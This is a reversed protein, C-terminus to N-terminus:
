LSFNPALKLLQYAFVVNNSSFAYTQAKDVGFKGDGGASPLGGTTATAGLQGGFKAAGESSLHFGKAIKVGTIMFVPKSLISDPKMLARIIPDKAREMILESTVGDRFYTTELTEISYETRLSKSQEAGLKLQIGELFTAWLSLSLTRGGEDVLKWDSESVTTTEPQQAAPDPRTLVIHPKLPNAIINGLGIPGDPRFTWNPALLYTANAIPLGM